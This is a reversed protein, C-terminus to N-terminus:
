VLKKGFTKEKESRPVNNRTIKIPKGFFSIKFNKGGAIARPVTNGARKHGHNRVANQILNDM